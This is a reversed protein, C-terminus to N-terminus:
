AAILEGLREKQDWSILNPVEWQQMLTIAAHARERAENSSGTEVLVAIRNHKGILDQDRLLRTTVLIPDIQRDGQTHSPPEYTFLYLQRAGVGQV